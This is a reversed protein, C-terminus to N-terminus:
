PRHFALTDGVSGFEGSPNVYEKSEGTETDTVTLTYEVNSLAGYFVWFHENVIRGDLVKVVLEVNNQNFFWFYGTDETLGVAHGEGTDGEFDTWSVEVRFRDDNLCLNRGGPTCDAATTPQPLAKGPLAALASVMEFAEPDVRGPPVEVVRHKVTEGGDEAPLALTDGVSAFNHAPNSYSVSLGTVTDAVTLTYEVNSLAGYFVWFHGNLTRADLVKVILEVNADNFFWFYGTDSTLQNAHGVGTEGSFDRWSVSIRFRQSNVCLNTDHALCIHGGYKTIRELQGLQGQRWPGEDELANGRLNVYRLGGLHVLSAPLRGRLNNGDLVLATVTSSSADCRVGYWSCESGAPGLWGDARSWTEGGTAHYLDMLAQRELEPLAAAVPLTAGLVLTTALAGRILGNVM